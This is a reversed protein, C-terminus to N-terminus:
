EKKEEQTPTEDKKQYDSNEKQEDITDDIKRKKSRVFQMVEDTSVKEDAHVYSNYRDIAHKVQLLHLTQMLHNMMAQANNPGMVNYLNSLQVIYDCFIQPNKNILLSFNHNMNPPNVRTGNNPVVAGSKTASASRMAAAAKLPSPVAAAAALTDLSAATATKAMSATFNAKARTAAAPPLALEIPLESKDSDRIEKLLREKNSM